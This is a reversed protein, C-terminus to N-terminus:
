EDDIRSPLRVQGKVRQGQRGRGGHQESLDVSGYLSEDGAVDAPLGVREVDVNIGIVMIM